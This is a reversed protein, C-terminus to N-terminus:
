PLWAVPCAFEVDTAWQTEEGDEFRYTFLRDTEVTGVRTRCYALFKGDPSFRPNTGALAHKLVPPVAGEFGILVVRFNPKPLNSLYRSYAIWKGDASWGTSAPLVDEDTSTLYTLMTDPPRMIALRRPGAGEHVTLLVEAAHPRWAIFDVDLTRAWLQGWSRASLEFLQLTKLGGDAPVFPVLLRAEDPSLAPTGFYGSTKQYLITDGTAATVRALAVGSVPSLSVPGYFYSGDATISAVGGGIGDAWRVATLPERVYASAGIDLKFTSLLAFPPNKTYGSFYLHGTPLSPGTPAVPSNSCGSVALIMAVGVAPGVKSIGITSRLM